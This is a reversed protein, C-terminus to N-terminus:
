TINKKIFDVILDAVTVEAFSNKVTDTSVIKNVGAEILKQISGPLFLGHTFLTIVRGDFYKRLLKVARAATGGTSIIDDFIIATDNGKSLEVLESEDRPELSVIKGSKLDRVKRFSTYPVDVMRALRSVVDLRGEDPAVLFFSGKVRSSLYESWARLSSLNIFREGFVSFVDPSHVDITAVLDAGASFLVDVFVKASVCEGSLFRKDQRSYPLYPYFVSVFRAGLDKLTSAFFVGRLFCDSQQFPLCGMVVFVSSGSVDGLFRVYFEGDPFVKFELPLLDFGGSVVVRSGLESYFPDVVVWM